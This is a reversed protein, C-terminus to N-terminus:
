KSGAKQLVKVFQATIWQPRTIASGVVVAYAGLSLAQAAHEPIAIRGEAIVPISRSKMVGVLEELLKFDPGDLIPSDQTYGSLTTAVFDAGATVAALGEALNSVDAVVPKGTQRRIQAILTDSSLGLPHPRATADIAIMDAGAEAVRMAHQLTPTIRVDFGPLDAKYLGIIPVHVKRRIATIDAPTNARIGVAGVSVAAMAMAAMYESGFLPEDPLAQCSVILGRKLQRTIASLEM